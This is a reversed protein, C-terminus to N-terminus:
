YELISENKKCTSTSLYRLLISTSYKLFTSPEAMCACTFELYICFVPSQEDSYCTLVFQDCIGKLHFGTQKMWIGLLLKTTM